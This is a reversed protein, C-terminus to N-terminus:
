RAKAQEIRQLAQDADYPPKLFERLGDFTPQILGASADRDFFFTLGAAGRVIAQSAAGLSGRALAADAQPSVTQNVENLRQLVGSDALFALFRARARHNEGRAPLVLVDLPAEEYQPMDPAYRPFAFFGMDPAIAAPFKSAIFSGMLTMGVQNRYLYPLVNDWELGMTAALFYDKRLLDAWVDFIKRVRPDDFREDGRLLKRHFEIGNIRLDLYDFWGAAPWGARGGIALPTVGAAKLRRCVALFESWTSPPQLGLRAFLSKRYVLGWGYYYLPFGYVEGDIRTGDLTAPSFKKKLLLAVQGADLPALLDRRAADQLRAGAFWYALDAKENQLRAMFDRKYQEQPYGNHVVQIDPNEASFQDVIRVWATRQVSSSIPYDIVLREAAAGTPPLALLACILLTGPWRGIQM